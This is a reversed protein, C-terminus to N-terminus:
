SNACRLASGAFMDPKHTLPVQLGSPAGTRPDRAM